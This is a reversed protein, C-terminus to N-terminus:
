VEKNLFLNKISNFTKVLDCLYVGSCNFCNYEIISIENDDTKALDM